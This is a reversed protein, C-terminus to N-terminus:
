EKFMMVVTIKLSPGMVIVYSYQDINIVMM